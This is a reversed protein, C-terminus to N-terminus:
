GVKRIHCHEDHEEQQKRRERYLNEAPFLARCVSACPGEDVAAEFATGVGFPVSARFDEYLNGRGLAGASWLQHSFVSLQHSSRCGWWRERRRRM